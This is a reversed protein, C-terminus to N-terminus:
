AYLGVTQTAQTHKTEEQKKHVIGIISVRVKM